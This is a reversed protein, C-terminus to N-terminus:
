EPVHGGRPASRRADATQQTAITAIDEGARHCAIPHGTEHPVLEPRSRACLDIAIPCRPHFPCGAPPATPSPPEGRAGTSRRAREFVPDPVPAAALLAQTYPHGPNRLIADRDGFEVVRGLYMVAVHTAVTRVVALDHSIFVLTLSLERKLDRLLNLIQAQISVDLASVPEDAVIFEPALALARAIGIRQRQGGSFAHPYRQVADAPMGVLALLEQVRRQRDGRSGVDHAKLPEAIIDGVRMRPNLSSQPDQFIMQARRRWDRLESASLKRIDQGDFVVQGSVPRVLALLARGLTTKGCGSEGVVALVDGRAISLSVDTVAHVVPSRLTWSRTKAQYTVTLDRVEVLADGSM